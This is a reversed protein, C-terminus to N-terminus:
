GMFQFVLQPFFQIKSVPGITLFLSFHRQTSLTQLHRPPQGLLGEGKYRPFCRRLFTKKGEWAALAYINKEELFSRCFSLRSKCWVM